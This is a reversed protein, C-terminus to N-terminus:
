RDDNLITGIGQADFILANSSPGSLNVFFTENAEKKKDGKVVVTITRTTEGPTFTVTGSTAVYDSDSVAATGDATAYHVSVAQDYAASLTVTFTFATTKGNGEYKSVDNISIRPEDDLITGIGQGDGIMANTAASLNVAFTENPEALRDGKAAVTFTRTLQGAPIIVDGSAATYDSGATATINATAYHVVVDVNSAYSLTLKFTANVTGTNGETVTADSISVVPPWYQDNILVSVSGGSNATTVDLWGDGNFDGLAVAVPGSGVAYDQSSLFGGSGNGLQVSVTDANATVVDLKGDGNVDGSAVSETQRGTGFGGPSLNGSGNGLMEVVHSGPNDNGFVVMDQNGDGNLDDVAGYYFYGGGIVSTIPPWFSGDGNGLLVGVEGTPAYDDPGQYNAVVGLDLLGDNDFDGVVVSAPNLDINMLNPHQFTGDGNGLLVGARAESQVYWGGDGYSMVFTTGTVALDLKGDANFDGVAVSGSNLDTGSTKAPQFTGDANGLLVSVTSGNAAALDLHGDNNFDATIVAQPNPGVPYSAAPSFSPTLRDELVELCPRLTAARLSGQRRPRRQGRGPALASRLNHLWRHFSM